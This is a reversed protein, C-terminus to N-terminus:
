KAALANTDAESGMRSIIDEFDGTTPAAGEALLDAEYDLKLGVSLDVGFKLGAAVELGPEGTIEIVSKLKAELKSAQALEMCLLTRADGLGPGLPDRAWNQLTHMAAEEDQEDGLVAEAIFRTTERDLTSALEISGQVNVGVWEAFGHLPTDETLQQALDDAVPISLKVKLAEISALIEEVSAGESLGGQLAAEAEIGFVKGKAFAEMEVNGFSMAELDVDARVRVGVDAALEGQLEPLPISIKGKKEGDETTGSLEINSGSIGAYAGSSFELEVTGATPMDGEGKLDSVRIAAAGVKLGANAAAGEIGIDVDASGGAKVDGKIAVATVMEALNISGAQIMEDLAYMAPLGGAVAGVLVFGDWTGVDAAKLSIEVSGNAKCYLKAQAEETGGKEGVGGELGAEGSVTFSGELVGGGLHRLMGAYNAGAAVSAITMSAGLSLEVGVGPPWTADMVAEALENRANVLNELTPGDLVQVLAILLDPEQKAFEALLWEAGKDLAEGLLLGAFKAPLANLFAATKLWDLLTWLLDRDGDQGALHEVVEDILGSGVQSLLPMAVEIGVTDVYTLVAEVSTLQELGWDVVDLVGDVVEQGKDVVWDFAGEAESQGEEQGQMEDQVAGNGVQEAHAAGADETVPGQAQGTGSSQHISTPQQQQQRKSM